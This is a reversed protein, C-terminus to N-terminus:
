GVRIKELQHVHQIAFQLYPITLVMWEIGLEIGESLDSLHNHGICVVLRDTATGEPWVITLGNFYFPHEDVRVVAASTCSRHDKSRKFLPCFRRAKIFADKFCAEVLRFGYRKIPFGSILHNWVITRIFIYCVAHTHTLAKGKRGFSNILRKVVWRASRANIKQDFSAYVLM